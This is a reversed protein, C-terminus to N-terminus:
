LALPERIIRRGAANEQSFDHNAELLLHLADRLNERAEELTQGQANAGPIEEIWAAYGDGDEAYVATYVVTTITAM